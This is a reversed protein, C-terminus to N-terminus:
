QSQGQLMQFSGHIRQTKAQKPQLQDLQHAMQMRLHNNGLRFEKHSKDGM